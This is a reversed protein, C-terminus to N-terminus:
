GGTTLLKKNSLKISIYNIFLFKIYNIYVTQHTQVFAYVWSVMMLILTIFMDIVELLKRTGRLPKTTTTQKATLVNLM